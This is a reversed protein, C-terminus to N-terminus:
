LKLMKGFTIGVGPTTDEIKFRNMLFLPAARIQWFWNDDEFANIGIFPMLGTGEYHLSIYQDSTQHYKGLGYNLYKLDFGTCLYFNEGFFKLGVGFTATGYCFQNVRQGFPTSGIGYGTGTSIFIRENQALVRHYSLGILGRNFMGLECTMINKQGHSKTSLGTILLIGIKIHKLLSKTRLEM